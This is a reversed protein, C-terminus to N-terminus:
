GFLGGLLKGGGGKGALDALDDLVSGDGDQDLLDLLSGKGKTPIRRAVEEREGALLGQLGGADLGQRKKLKGLASMILPALLALLQAVQGLDLGSVKGVGSEVTGRRDGLVHRLIGAGDTAKGFGSGGGGLLSGAASLLGGLGDSGGTGGGGGLLSGFSELLSGDHDRDLAAALSAAGQPKETNRALGGILLPLAAAIAKETSGRDAGIQRSLDGITGPGLSKQLTELLTPM